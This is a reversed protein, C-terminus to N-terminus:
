CANIIAYAMKLGEMDPKFRAIPSFKDEVFHPDIRGQALLDELKIGKYLILKKGEYNKCDPYLVEILLYEGYCLTCTVKFNKPNPNLSDGCSSSIFSLGM